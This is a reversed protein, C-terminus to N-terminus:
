DCLRTKGKGLSEELRELDDPDMFGREIGLRKAHGIVKHASCQNRRAIRSASINIWWSRQRSATFIGKPMNEHHKHHCEACLLATSIDDGPIQHHVQLKSTAGCEECQAEKRSKVGLRRAIQVPLEGVFDQSAIALYDFIITKGCGPCELQIPHGLGRAALFGAGYIVLFAGWSLEVNYVEEYQKKIDDLINKTKASVSITTVNGEYSKTKSKLRISGKMIIIM